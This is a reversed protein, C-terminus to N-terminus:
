EVEKPAMIQQIGVSEQSSTVLGPSYRLDVVLKFMSSLSSSYTGQNLFMYILKHYLFFFFSFPINLINAELLAQRGQYVCKDAQWLTLM